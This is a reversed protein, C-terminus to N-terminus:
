QIRPPDNMIDREAKGVGLALAPFVDTVLNLFLIQLPLLPLPLFLFFSIAVALIEALNCSLLYVTFQRINEFIARGQRIAMEISTFRDDKLVVDACERAAETGRIGM